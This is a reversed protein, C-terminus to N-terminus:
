RIWELGEIWTKSLAGILDRFDTATMKELNIKKHKIYKFLNKGHSSYGRSYVSVKYNIWSETFHRVLQEQCCLKVENLENPYYNINSTHWLLVAGEEVTKKLSSTIPYDYYAIRRPIIVLDGENLNLSEEISLEQKIVEEYTKSSRKFKDIHYKKCSVNEHDTVLIMKM